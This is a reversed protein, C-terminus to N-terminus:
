QLEEQNENLFKEIADVKLVLFWKRPPKKSKRLYESSGQGNPVFKGDSLGRQLLLEKITKATTLFQEGQRQYFSVVLKYADDFRLWITSTTEERFGIFSSSDSVYM